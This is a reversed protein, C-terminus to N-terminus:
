QRPPNIEKVMAGNTDSLVLLALKQVQSLEAPKLMQYDLGNAPVGAGSAAMPAPAGFPDSSPSDAPGNLSAYDFRGRLDTYGDKYFRVTGDNLKAYVKVYAKPLPKDSGSDRTELRGYNETIALKLTNAHYAQAKRQGAGIVEVLVNARAFEAPLPVTLTNKDKPLTQTATKNPKIISFRGADQSVFPNSSFSFESDMLYYNLTVEGLNKWTLAISQNEVKLEFGPETGALEGQQVERDPKERKEPRANKGEIDDLQTTVDAFLTKWRPVPFNAYKAAITRAEPLKDEYFAAYCQLYDHQMKTPLANADIAKFRALAEDVRDQLFLFYAVSLSDMVDLQPKHALINLLSDYEQLVAPNAIRWENGLRHARQNVLPSYELHEYGRREIPDLTILTTALFPGCRGAFDDRHKLWERLTGADDHLLAYTAIVDNWVHHTNLTTTLKKYFDVNKRCRWAIRELNLLKLNHQDLFAFVEADTGYQSVYDWSAKDFQTLKAVVNFEFPKAGTAAGSGTSVNVPFHAFKLGAKAPVEPFYFYYELTKTTYPELRVQGSDTTKSGLVPLAGQPIQLLVTAKVPASTPNTVVVNAGYVAGTLFEDTVYKEFKENGEQRYRDGERFFSQSVLLQGQAADQGGQPAAVKIEKHYVIVPGGATLTLKGGDAKTLHKKADFPLDLVALALMMEAFNRHAEAVNASVFAGKAGGAVWAAYDRWFANVTVLDANQQAIRLEYYNNEAWEKTPGLSRFMSRYATRGERAADAGFYAFGATRTNINVKNSEDDTWFAMRGVLAEQRELGAKREAGRGDKAAAEQPKEALRQMEDVTMSRPAMRPLIKATAFPDAPAAPAATPAPAFPDAAALASMGRSSGAGPRSASLDTVLMEVQDLAPQTNRVILQSTAPVYSASAGEPFVIGQARLVDIASGGGSAALFNPPVRFTKTYQETNVDSLPVVVVAYNEIKYKMQGLETIYKLAESMPVDKLDLTIQSTSPASGPKIVLNVGKQAPDTTMTDYDRSKIRLFEVAEEISAGQFQVQPFIIRQMKEAYYAGEAAPAGYAAGGSSDIALREEMARGRLATEFLRDQEEPNPPIMEWLERLHRAANPAEGEIRQALLCREVVNLRSYAWPELYGSLDRGLLFDDMFTKDKKNALYPKVVADFFPKDKRALFFNLEHCAFEGFKARKEADTLRPWQLVFAFKALNADGSLTTLLAHVSSLTDYTEMESTLIDAVTLPNGKELVTVEKRQSFPKTPDLNRGLRQDALKTATEPLAFTRWSANQLDEAYVQVHQRDGLAKREIRVIGEKDPVLNYITPAGNAFFDLNTDAAASAAEVPPTKPQEMQAATTAGAAGGRTMGASEGANLALEELDTKRTEWPNLLLGPRTLMNGPYAKAYRRDMIYRYEDGIARGASYLNPLKAPTGSAAGFRTFSGLGGFLSTGPEFRTAAVHVRAFPSSNALKITIFEKDTLMGTIHLPASNRVELNRHKGLLWGGMPEGATVNVIVTRPEGAIRLSYDGPALGEIIFFGDRQTVAARHDTTFTGARMGLFSVSEPKEGAPVRVVEGSRAHLTTTFTREEDDLTWIGQRGNPCKATVQVIDPLAGLQVRGKEDTRLPVTQVRAFDRHKFTFVVQQDALAEGNKGLLEFVHANDFKSLHGDSAAETKDMGNLTWTHTASVDRKEGGTSLVDVKGSFTVSLSALREPVTLTHTLVSGASLKLDKVERTTSIGDHTTSTITLKPETLLGPALHTQGLMLATRVALTAQRRALLQEREIHFQADLQYDESHHEFETLTAFTGAADGIILPKTGSQSTFPVVIRGLKEDRTLKRGDLWAVADPVPQRKEDLVLLLDGAPGAQQLVQWQGVRVLVRSSRGGGIFEIIWAGRRGKLEDLTFTQRVRTFPGNELTLIRENNAVLGDLNLDTNLQRHQTQFFNLTNLEYFKMVLKPTNKFIVDFKVEDGPQFFPANTAPFEIDVREKLQQFATPTLLSAWRDANGIGNVIMAEAFVPKLWTDRVYPKWAAIAADSNEASQPDRAFLQLFYERVLAEDNGIPPSSLLPDSLDANLDSRPEDRRGAGELLRLEVYPMSRPLKLYETFRERDYVGRKRDHDLRLYLVRSKLTNFTSPLVKAYSWVRDLWAEREAEDYELNVDASPALKRMKTFVFRENKALDPIAAALQDLQEPLLARHIAFEGFGRSERARLEATILEVLGPVDPRQLKQLLGRRQHPPLTVRNRVLAELAEQTFGQLGSDNVLSDALFANRAIRQPDLATPLDPKQDRVEQQHDHRIGLREKLYALTAQPNADYGLLVERNEIIRRREVEDPFRKKWQALIDALKAANRTNQYHLAHFFYYDESGPVLEGLAKERDPALAFREIFGIENEATAFPPLSCALLLALSLLNPKM